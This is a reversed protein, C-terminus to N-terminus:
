KRSRTRSEPSRKRNRRGDTAVGEFEEIYDLLKLVGFRLSKICNRLEAVEIATADEPPVSFAARYMKNAHRRMLRLARQQKDTIM